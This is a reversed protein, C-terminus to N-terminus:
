NKLETLKEVVVGESYLPLYRSQNRHDFGWNKHWHGFFWRKYSVMGDIKDNFHVNSDEMFDCSSEICFIGNLPGTHSLVFDFARGFKEIRSLCAAEEESTWEEQVWLDKDLTRRNKDQSQAGGLVLFSKGQINYIHGRILYFVNGSVKLVRDGYMDVQPLKELMNYNDHNGMVALVKFPKKDYWDLLFKEDKAAPHIGNEDVPCDEWPLGFDGLVFVETIESYDAGQLACYRRMWKTTLHRMDITNHTDGTIYIM